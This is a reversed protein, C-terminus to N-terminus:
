AIANYESIRGIDTWEDKMLYTHMKYGMKLGRQFLEPMDCWEGESLLHLLKNSIVYMGANVLFKNVPKEEIGIIQNDICSIVGFPNQIELHRVAMLGLTKLNVAEQLLDNFSLTTWLDANTVVAYGQNNPMSFSALAGATGLPKREHLYNINVGFDEGDKFYSTIQESLYNVSITINYFGDSRAKEIIHELIPKGQIPLMPKPCTKTLPLLRKGKGGAMIILHEDHTIVHKFQENIHLGILEQAQNIIPLHLYQKLRMLRKAEIDSLEDTAVLPKTNMVSKITKLLSKDKLLAKRIDSDTIIGLFKNEKNTILCAQYGGNNMTRIALDFSSDEDIVINKWDNARTM